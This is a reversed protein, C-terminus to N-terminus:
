ACLAAEVEEAHFPMNELTNKNFIWKQIICYYRAYKDFFKKILVYLWSNALRHHIVTLISKYRRFPPMQRSLLSFSMFINIYNALRKFREKKEIKKIRQLM